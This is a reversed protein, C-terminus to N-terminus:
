EREESDGLSRCHSILKYWDRLCVMDDVNLIRMHDKDHIIKFLVNPVCLHIEHHDREHILCHSKEYQISQTGPVRTDSVM